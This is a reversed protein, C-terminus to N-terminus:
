FSFKEVNISDHCNKSTYLQKLPFFFHKSKYNLYDLTFVNNYVDLQCVIQKYNSIM